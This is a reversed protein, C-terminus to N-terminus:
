SSGARADPDFPHGLENEAAAGSRWSGDRLGGSGASGRDSWRARGCYKRETYLVDLRPCVIEHREIAAIYNRFLDTRHRGVM